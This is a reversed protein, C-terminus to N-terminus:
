RHTLYKNYFNDIHPARFLFRHPVGSVTMHDIDVDKKLLEKALNLSREIKVVQDIDGHLIAIKASTGRFAAINDYPDRLIFDPYWFGMDRTVSILRDFPALLFIQEPESIQAQLGAVAGGLSYGTISVSEYGKEIAFENVTQVLLKMKGMTTPRTDGSYGAYEPLLTDYGFQAFYRGVNRWSCVTGGNGHYMVMLHRSGIDTLYGRENDKQWVTVEAPKPCNALDYDRAPYIIDRQIFWLIVASIVYLVSVSILVWRFLKKFM